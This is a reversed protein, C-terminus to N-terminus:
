SGQLGVFPNGAKACEVYLAMARSVHLVGQSDCLIYGPEKGGCLM